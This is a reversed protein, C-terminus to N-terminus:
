HSFGDVARQCYDFEFRAGTVPDGRGRALHDAMVTDWLVDYDEAAAPADAPLHSTYEALVRARALAPSADVIAAGFPRLSGAAYDVTWYM